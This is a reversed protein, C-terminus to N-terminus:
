RDESTKAEDAQPMAFLSDDIPVDLEVRTFTVTQRQPMGRVATEISHPIMLGGVEKYDGSVTEYEIEQGRVTRRGEEKIELYYEADLYIYSVDGGGRVLRLKYADTGELKERGVLEVTHGKEKWDVLPGEFDAQAALQKVMEDPLKEPETKGMFPLYMWGTEGDFAQIGTQGQITFEVRLKDPRKWYWTFPAEMGQGMTMTGEIRATRVAHLRELGGRAQYYRALVRELTMPEGAAAMAAWALGALAVAAVTTRRM